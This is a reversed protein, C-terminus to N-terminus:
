ASIDLSSRSRRPAYVPSLIQEILHDPRAVQGELGVQGRRKSRSFTGFLRDWLTIFDGYNGDHTARDPSHHLRHTAPTILWPGLFRELRPLELDAHQFMAAAVTITQSVIVVSPPAGIASIVVVSLPLSVLLELPHSRLSTSIDVSDDAHHIRHLRWLAPVTHLTRHVWYGAFSDVLLFVALAVAWPWNYLEALGPFQGQAVFSSAIKAAPLWFGISLILIGLGFNTVLRADSPKEADTGRAAALEAWALLMFFVLLGVDLIAAIHL